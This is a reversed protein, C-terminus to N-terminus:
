REKEREEREEIKTEERGWKDGVRQERRKRSKGGRRERSEREIEWLRVDGRVVDAIGDHM